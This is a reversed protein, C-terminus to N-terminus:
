RRNQLRHSRHVQLLRTEIPLVGLGAFISCAFAQGLLAGCRAAARPLRLLMDACRTIPQRRVWGPCRRAAVRLTTAAAAVVAASAAFTRGSWLQTAPCHTSRQLAM